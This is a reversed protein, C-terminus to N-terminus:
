RGMLMFSRVNFLDVVFIFKLLLTKELVVLRYCNHHPDDQSVSADLTKNSEPFFVFKYPFHLLSPECLEKSAHRTTTQNKTAPSKTSRKLAGWEAIYVPSGLIFQWFIVVKVNSVILAFKEFRLLITM